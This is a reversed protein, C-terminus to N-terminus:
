KKLLVAGGGGRGGGPAEPRKFPLVTVFLVEVVRDM